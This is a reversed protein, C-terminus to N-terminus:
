KRNPFFIYLVFHETALVPADIKVQLQTTVHTKVQNVTAPKTSNGVNASFGKCILERMSLRRGRDSGRQLFLQHTSNLPEDGGARVGISGSISKGKARTQIIELHTPNPTTKNVRESSMRKM